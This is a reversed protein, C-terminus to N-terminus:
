NSLAVYWSEMRSVSADLDGPQWSKSTTEWTYYRKGLHTKYNGASPMNIGLVSHMYVDSNLMIVDYGFKTLLTYLFLVKSDCDGKFIEMFEVPTYVGFRDDNPLLEYTIHQVFAVIVKVFEESNLLRRKRINDLTNYVLDLKSKDFDSLFKYLQTYDSPNTKSKYLLSSNIDSQRVEFTGSFLNKEYDNWQRYHSVNAIDIKSKIESEYSLIKQDLNKEYGSFILSMLLIIFVGFLINQLIKNM